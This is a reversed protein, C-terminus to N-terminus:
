CLIVEFWREPVPEIPYISWEGRKQVLKERTRSLACSLCCDELLLGTKFKAAGAALFRSQQDGGTMAVLVSDELDDPGDKCPYSPLVGDTCIPVGLHDDVNVPAHNTHSASCPETCFLKAANSICNALCVDSVWGDVEVISTLAIVKYYENAYVTFKSHRGDGSLHLPKTRDWLSGKPIGKGVDSTYHGDISYGCRIGTYARDNLQFNGDAVRFYMEHTEHLELRELLSPYVVASGNGFGLGHSDPSKDDTMMAKIIAWIDEPRPLLMLPDIPRQPSREASITYGNYGKGLPSPPGSFAATDPYTEVFCAAITQRFIHELDPWRCIPVLSLNTGTVHTTPTPVCIFDSTEVYGRDGPLIRQVITSFETWLDIWQRDKDFFFM